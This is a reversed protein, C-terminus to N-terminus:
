VAVFARWKDVFARILGPRAEVEAVLDAAAPNTLTYVIRDVLADDDLIEIASYRREYVQGRVRDMENLAKAFTGHPLGGLCSAQWARTSLM